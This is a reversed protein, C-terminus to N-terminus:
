SVIPAGKQCFSSVDYHAQRSLCLITSTAAQTIVLAQQVAAAIKPLTRQVSSEQQISELALFRIPWFHTGFRVTTPRLQNAKRSALSIVFATVDRRTALLADCCRM